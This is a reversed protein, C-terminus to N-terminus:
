YNSANTAVRNRVRRSCHNIANPHGLWLQETFPKEIQWSKGCASRRSSRIIEPERTSGGMCFTLKVRFVGNGVKPLQVMMQFILRACFVYRHAWQPRNMVGNVLLCAFM